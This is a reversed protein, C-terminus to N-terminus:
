KVFVSIVAVALVVALEASTLFYGALDGSVGGFEKKTMFAYWALAAYAAVAAAAGPLPDALVMLLIALGMVGLLVGNTVNKQTAGTVYALTGNGDARPLTIAALGSLARTLIFGLSVILMKRGNDIMSFAAAYLLYYVIVRIVAFAGIHSDKLIRRKEEPSRHSNLADMTDMYGDVHFGGTVLIPIVTGILTFCLTGIEKAACIRFWLYELAGILLGVIPFFCLSYRMDEEKWEFQPMPLASYNSLAIFLSHIIHM